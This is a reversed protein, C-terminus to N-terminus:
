KFERFFKNIVNIRREALVVRLVVRVEVPITIKGM